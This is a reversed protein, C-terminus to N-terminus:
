REVKCIDNYKFSTIYKWMRWAITFANLIQDLNETSNIAYFHM